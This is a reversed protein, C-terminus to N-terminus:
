NRYYKTHVLRIYAIEPDSFEGDSMPSQTVPEYVIATKMVKSKLTQVLKINFKLDDTFSFDM